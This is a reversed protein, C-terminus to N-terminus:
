NTRRDITGGGMVIGDRYLVVSQGPTIARVPEDFIIHVKDDSVSAIHCPSGKHGYRIKAIFEDGPSISQAGVLNFSDTWLEGSFVDDKDGIVVEGTEPRIDSVYIPKGMAIGLGKRQGITYHFIGKHPGIIEGDPTVFNGMLNSTSCKDTIYSCYDNDPIFCIEMSDSKDAVPIGASKAIDRIQPKTYNGLPMLTRKLQEQTLGYLVYTQDKTASASLRISYRGNPLEVINAYHGTAVYDVGISDAYHLLAEWKILRNCMVCPNPTRGNVYDNIFYDIVNHSFEEEFHLIHHEIGLHRAVKAADEIGPPNNYLMQMTIGIVEYGQELLLHAVVSSDVGGSMGVIVKKPM